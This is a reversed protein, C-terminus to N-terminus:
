SSNYFSIWDINFWVGTVMTGNKGVAYIVGGYGRNRFLSM